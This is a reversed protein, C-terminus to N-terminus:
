DTPGVEALGKALRVAYWECDPLHSHGCCCSECEGRFRLRLKTRANSFAEQISCSDLLDEYVLKSFITAIHDNLKFDSKVIILAKM